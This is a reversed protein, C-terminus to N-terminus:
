GQVTVVADFTISIGGWSRGRDDADSWDGSDGTVYGYPREGAEQILRNGFYPPNPYLPNNSTGLTRDLYLLAEWQGVLTDLAQEAQELHPFTSLCFLGCYVRFTKQRWGSTPGGIAIRRVPVQQLKVAMVAGFAAGPAQGLTFYPDPPAGKILYPYATGLGYPTLPGGQFYDGADDPVQAGGFYAAVAQRVNQRDGATM